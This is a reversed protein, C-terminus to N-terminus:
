AASQYRVPALRMRLHNLAKAECLSVAQKSVHLEAAIDECTRGKLHRQVTIYRQRDTLKFLALILAYADVSLRPM